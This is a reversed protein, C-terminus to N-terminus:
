LQSEQIASNIEHKMDTTTIFVALSTISRHLMFDLSVVNLSMIFFMAEAEFPIWYKPDSFNMKSLSLLCSVEAIDKTRFLNILHTHFDKAYIQRRNTNM